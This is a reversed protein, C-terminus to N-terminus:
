CCLESSPVFTAAANNSGTRVSLTFFVVSVGIQSSRTNPEKSTAQYDDKMTDALANRNQGSRDIQKESGNM